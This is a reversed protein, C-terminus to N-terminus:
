SPLILVRAIVTHRVAAMLSSAFRLICSGLGSLLLSGILGVTTTGLVPDTFSGTSQEPICNRFDIDAAVSPPRATALKSLGAVKTGAALAATHEPEINSAEIRTARISGPTTDVIDVAM